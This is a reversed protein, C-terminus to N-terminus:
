GRTDLFDCSRGSVDTSVFSVALLRLRGKAKVTRVFCDYNLNRRM